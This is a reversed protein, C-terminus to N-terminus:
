ARDERSARAARAGTAIQRVVHAINASTQVETYGAGSARWRQAMDARFEAFRSAYQQAAVRDLPRQTAITEPDRALFAGTPLTLEEAAIVHVCEVQGGAVTRQSAARVLADVDGLLDSVIVVRAMLPLATMLPALAGDGGVPLLDLARAMDGVTGRRTRAAQRVAGHAGMALLGVPDGSAHAVAALGVVVGCALQWKSVRTEDLQSPFAM